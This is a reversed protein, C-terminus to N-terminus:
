CLWGCRPRNRVSTRRRLRDAPSLGAQGRRRNLAPTKSVTSRAVWGFPRQQPTIDFGFYHRVEARSKAAVEDGKAGPAGPKASEMFVELGAEHWDVSGAAITWCGRECACEELIQGQTNQLYDDLRETLSSKAMRQAESWAYSVSAPLRPTDSLFDTVYLFDSLMVMCSLRFEHMIKAIEVDEAVDGDSAELYVWALWGRIKAVVDVLADASGRNIPGSLLVARCGEPPPLERATHGLLGNALKDISAGIIKALNTYRSAEICTVNAAHGPSATGPFIAFVLSIMALQRRSTAIM